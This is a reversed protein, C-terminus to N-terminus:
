AAAEKIRDQMLKKDRALKEKNENIVQFFAEVIRKNNARGNKVDSIHGKSYEQIVKEDDRLIEETRKLYGYPLNNSFFRVQNRNLVM